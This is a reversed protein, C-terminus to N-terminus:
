IGLDKNLDAAGSPEAPHVSGAVNPEKSASRQPAAPTGLTVVNTFAATEAAGGEIAPEFPEGFATLRSPGGPVPAPARRAASRKRATRAALLGLLGLGVIAAAAYAWQGAARGSSSDVKQPAAPASTGAPSPAQTGPPPPSAQAKAPAPTQAGAVPKPEVGPNSASQAAVTGPGKLELLARMEQIRKELEAIRGTAERLANERATAEEELGSIRNQLARQTLEPAKAVANGAEPGAGRSLTLVDRGTNPAPAKNSDQAVAAQGAEPRPEGTVPTRVAATAALKQRYANWNATALRILGAADAPLIRQAAEASPIQLVQGSKLLNMNNDIFAARNERFLAVMMQETTVGEMRLRAAIRGLTDRQKVRYTSSSRAANKEPLAAPRAASQPTMSAAAPAESPPASRGQGPEAPSAPLSLDATGGPKQASNPAPNVGATEARSLPQAALASPAEPAAQARAGPPLETVVAPPPPAQARSVPPPTNQASAVPQELAVPYERMQRGAPWNLEVLLDLSLENIPQASSVKLYPRGDPKREVALQVSNLAPSYAVNAAKFADPPAVRAAISGLEDKAVNALEIEARLPEGASSLVTLRGLTAAAAAQSLLLLGLGWLLSSARLDM